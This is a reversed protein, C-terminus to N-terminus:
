VRKIILKGIQYGFFAGALIDSPFHALVFLRSIAVLFGFFYFLSRYKPYRYSFIKALTFIFLTHGSPFSAYEYELNPGVFLTEFTVKPRARGLLYKTQSLVGPIIIALILYKSLNRNGSIYSYTGILISCIVFIKYFNETLNVFIKIYFFIDKYNIQLIKVLLVTKQDLYTFFLFLMLLFFFFNKYKEKIRM